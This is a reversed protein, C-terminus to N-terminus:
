YRPFKKIIEFLEDTPYVVLEDQDNVFIKFMPLSDQKIVAHSPLKFYKWEVTTVLGSCYDENGVSKPLDSLSAVVWYVENKRLDQLKLVNCSSRRINCNPSRFNSSLEIRYRSGKSVKIKNIRFNSKDLYAIENGLQDVVILRNLDTNLFLKNLIREINKSDFVSSVTEKDELVLKIEGKSSSRISAIFEFSESFRLKLKNKQKCGNIYEEAEEEGRLTIDSIWFKADKDSILFGEFELYS